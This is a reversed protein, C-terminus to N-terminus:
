EAASPLADLEFAFVMLDAVTIPPADVPREWMEKPLRWEELRAPQRYNATSTMGLVDAIRQQMVNFIQTRLCRPCLYRLEVWGTTLCHRVTCDAVNVDVVGCDSCRVRAIMRQMKM